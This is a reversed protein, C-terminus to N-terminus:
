RGSSTLDGYAGRLAQLAKLAKNVASANALFGEMGSRPLGAALDVAQAARTGIRQAELGANVTLAKQTLAAMSPPISTSADVPGVLAQIVSSFSVATDAIGKLILGTGLIAAPISGSVAAGAAFLGGTAVTVGGFFTGRLGSLAQGTRPNQALAQLTPLTARVTYAAAAAPALGFDMLEQTAQLQLEVAVRSATRISRGLEPHQRTQHAAGLSAGLPSFPSPGISLGPPSPAIQPVPATQASTQRGEVAVGIRDGIAYGAVAGVVVGGPGEGAGLFAGIVAGVIRAVWRFFGYGSPDVYHISNYM